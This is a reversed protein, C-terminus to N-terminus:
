RTLLTLQTQDKHPTIQLLYPIEHATDKVLECVLGQKHMEDIKAALNGSNIGADKATAEIVSRAMLIAARDTQVSQCQHAGSAAQAIHEPVHSYERGSRRHPLWSNGQGQIMKSKVLSLM